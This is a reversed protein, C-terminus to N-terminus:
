IARTNNAHANNAATATWATGFPKKNPLGVMVVYCRIFSMTNTIFLLLPEQDMLMLGSTNMHQIVM